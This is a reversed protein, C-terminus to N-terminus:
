SNWTPIPARASFDYFRLDDQTLMKTILIIQGTHMSFHEVVHFIAELVTVDCEQITRRDLLTQPAVKSLVDDVDDLTQKLTSLLEARSLGERADFEKQRERMDHTGGVGGVIWQRANGSLHLLLNGISNSDEGARWWIDENSLKKLCREIKPLYDTMLLSRAQSVFALGLDKM